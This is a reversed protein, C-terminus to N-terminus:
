NNELVANSVKQLFNFIDDYKRKYFVLTEGKENDVTATLIKKKDYYKMVLRPRVDKAKAAKDVAIGFQELIANVKKSYKDKERQLAKIYTDINRTSSNFFKNNEQSVIRSTSTRIDDTIFNKVINHVEKPYILKGFSNNSIKQIEM